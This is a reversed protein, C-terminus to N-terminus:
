RPEYRHDVDLIYTCPSIMCNTGITVANACDIIVGENIATSSGVVLKARGGITVDKRFTMSDRCVVSFPGAFRVGAELSRPRGASSFRRAYALFQARPIYAVLRGLGGAAKTVSRSIVM